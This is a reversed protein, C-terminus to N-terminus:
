DKKEDSNETNKNCNPASEKWRRWCDTTRSIGYYTVIRGDLPSRVIWDPQVGCDAYFLFQKIDVIKVVKGKYFDYM